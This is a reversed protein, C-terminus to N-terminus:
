SLGGFLHQLRMCAVRATDWFFYSNIQCWFMFWRKVVELHLYSCLYHCFPVLIHIQFGVCLVWM